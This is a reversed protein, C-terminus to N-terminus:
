RGKMGSTLPKIPPAEVLPVRNTLTRPHWGLVLRLDLTMWQVLLQVPRTSNRWRRGFILRLDVQTRQGVFQGTQLMSEKLRRDPIPENLHAQMCRAKNFMYM